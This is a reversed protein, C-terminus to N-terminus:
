SAQSTARDFGGGKSATGHGFVVYAPVHGAM